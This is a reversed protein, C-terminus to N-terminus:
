KTRPEQTQTTSVHGPKPGPYCPPSSLRYISPPLTGMGHLPSLAGVPHVGWLTKAPSSLNCIVRKLAKVKEHIQHSPPSPAGSRKTLHTGCSPYSQRLPPDLKKFIVTVPANSLTMLILAHPHTHIPVLLRSSYHCIHHHNGVALLQKDLIVM